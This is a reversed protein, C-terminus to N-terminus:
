GPFHQQLWVKHVETLEADEPMVVNCKIFLDGRNTPDGRAPMGEGEVRMVAFPATIGTMGVVIQRKDLHVITREFGLLAEKLTINVEANLNNGIRTFVKHPRETVKLVVDGPIMNPQQEGMGKFTVSDGGAMGREIDVPLNVPANRCKQKSPVEQHQQMIMPGMRVNVLELENACQVSCKKCRPTFNEACGRCIVKRNIRTQIEEGNYLGELSVKVEGNMAPGKKMAGNKAEDIKRLGHSDYIARKEPDSVIDYAERISHFRHELFQDGRTKDPHYKLSLKRFAQKIEKENASSDIGLEEYVDPEAQCLDECRFSDLHEGHQCGPKRITRGGGCECHGSFGPDIVANCPRDAQPEREGAPDCNGTQRWAVCTYRALVRCEDVCRFPRHDCTSARAKRKNACECYGSAGTAIEQSCPKDGDKERPGDSRCGGTQRWSKCRLDEETLPTEKFCAGGGDASCVESDAARAFLSALALASVQLTAGRM